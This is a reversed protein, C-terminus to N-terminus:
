KMERTLAYFEDLVAKWDINENPFSFEDKDFLILLEVIRDIIEKKNMKASLFSGFEQPTLEKGAQDCYNLLCSKIANKILKKNYEKEKVIQQYTRNFGSDGSSFYGRIQAFLSRNRFLLLTLFVLAPLFLLIWYLPNALITEKNSSNGSLIKDLPYNFLIGSSNTVLEKRNINESAIYGTRELNASTVIETDLVEIPISEAHATEVQGTLINFYNFNLSPISQVDSDKVRITQTFSVSQNEIKGQSRRDPISFSKIMEKFSDLAPFIASEPSVLNELTITYTIPDGIHVRLPTASSSIKLPGKSLNVPQGNEYAQSPLENISLTIRNSPIVASKYSTRFGNSREASDFSLTVPGLNTLGSNDTTLKLTFSLSSYQENKYKEASQMALVDLGNINLKYVDNGPAPELNEVQFKGTNIFPLNFSPNSVSTSFLWKITLIIPEGIWYDKKDTELFLFFGDIPEPDKVTITGSATKFIEGDIKIEFSPIQLIGKRLATFSWSYTVTKTRSSGSGLGFSSVMSTSAGKYRTTIGEIKGLDPVEADTTGDVIIRYEFPQGLYVESSEVSARVSQGYM